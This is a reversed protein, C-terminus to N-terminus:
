LSISILNLEGKKSLIIGGNLLFDVVIHNLKDRGLFCCLPSICSIVYGSIINYQAEFLQRYTIDDAHM